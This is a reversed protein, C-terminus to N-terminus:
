RDRVVVVPAGWPLSHYASCPLGLGELVFSQGAVLPRAPLAAVSTQSGCDAQVHGSVARLVCGVVVRVKLVLDAGIEAGPM